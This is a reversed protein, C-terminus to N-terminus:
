YKSSEYNTKTVVEINNHSKVNKLKKAKTVVKLEFSSCSKAVSDFIEHNVGYEKICTVNKLLTQGENLIVNLFSHKLYCLKSNVCNGCTVKEEM